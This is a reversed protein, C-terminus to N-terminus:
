EEVWALTLTHAGTTTAATVARPGGVRTSRDRVFAPLTRLAAELLDLETATAPRTQVGKEKYFISPFATPGAVPWGHEEATALDDEPTEDAGGFTVTLAETRAVNEHEPMDGAWLRRLLDLDRYLAVGATMGAMGMVVAYWPGDPFDDGAIRVAAESGLVKWPAHRYFDAAAAFVAGAQEPTVGDGALLGPPPGKTLRDQLGAFARDLHDLEAAVTLIVGLEALTPRLVECPGSRVQVETPRSSM